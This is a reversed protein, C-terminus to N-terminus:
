ASWTSLGPVRGRMPGFRGIGERALRELLGQDGSELAEALRERFSALEEPGDGLEPLGHREAGPDAPDLRKGDRVISGDGILAPFYLDFITDFNARHTERKVLTAAYGARVVARDLLPLRSVARVADLDEALSVPLGAARLAGVFEIHRDLLGSM